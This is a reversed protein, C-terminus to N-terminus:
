HGSSTGNRSNIFFLYKITNRVAQSIKDSYWVFNNDTWRQPHINLIIKDPLSGSNLLAILDGTTRANCKLSSPVKDRRNFKSNWSRGTETLYLIDRFDTDLNIDALIGASKYDHVSWLSLNDHRSISRGHSSITDIQVIERLKKLSSNFDLFARDPDGNCNSMNEYHYGVEHQLKAIKSIVEGKFMQPIDRFYYTSRVNLENEVMAMKLARLPRDDVDHRLVVIKKGAINAAIFERYPAFVYGNKLASELLLRFTPITFDKM